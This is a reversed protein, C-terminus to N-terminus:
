GGGQSLDGGTKPTASELQRIHLTRAENQVQGSSGIHLISAASVAIVDISGVKIFPNETVTHFTIPENIPPIPLSYSFINFLGFDAENSYFLERQRQVAIARALSNIIHSDGIQIVSALGTSVVSLADVKSTRKLM